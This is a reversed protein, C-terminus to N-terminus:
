KFSLQEISLIGFAGLWCKFNCRVVLWSLSPVHLPLLLGGIRRRPNERSFKFDSSGFKYRCLCSDRGGADRCDSIAEDVKSNPPNLM